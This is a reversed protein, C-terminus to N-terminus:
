RRGGGPVVGGRVTGDLRRVGLQNRGEGSDGVQRFSEDLRDLKGAFPISGGYDGALKRLDIKM